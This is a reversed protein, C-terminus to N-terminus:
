NNIETDREYRYITNHYVTPQLREVHKASYLLSAHLIFSHYLTHCIFPSTVPFYYAFM